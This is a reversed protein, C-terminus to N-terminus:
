VAWGETNVLDNPPTFSGTKPAIDMYNTQSLISNLLLHAYRAVGSKLTIPTLYM